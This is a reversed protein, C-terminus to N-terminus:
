EKTHIIFSSITQLGFFTMKLAKAFEGSIKAFTCFNGPSFKQSVRIRWWVHSYHQPFTSDNRPVWMTTSLDGPCTHLKQVILRKFSILWKLLLSSVHDCNKSGAMFARRRSVVISSLSSFLTCHSDMVNYSWYLCGDHNQCMKQCKSSTSVESGRYERITSGTRYM